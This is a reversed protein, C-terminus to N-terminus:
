QTFLALNNDGGLHRAAGRAAVRGTSDTNVVDYPPRPPIYAASGRDPADGARVVQGDAMTLWYGRGGPSAAIGVV